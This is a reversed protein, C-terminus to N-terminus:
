AYKTHQWQGAKNVDRNFTGARRKMTKLYLIHVSAQFTQHIHPMNNGETRCDLLHHRGIVTDDLDIEAIM